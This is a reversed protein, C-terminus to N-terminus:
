STGNVSLALFCHIKLISLKCSISNVTNPHRESQRVPPIFDYIYAPLKMSVVEYFLCLRRMWRRQQLDKLGLEQYLKGRSTGKIAGTIASAANCQVTKLETSFADNWPQDYVIDGYDLHPRVFLKYITLLSTRPLISQLKRLLGIGKM